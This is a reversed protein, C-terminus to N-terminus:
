KGGVPLADFVPGQLPTSKELTTTPKEEDPQAMMPSLLSLSVGCLLAIRVVLCLSGVGESPSIALITSRKTEVWQCEASRSAM